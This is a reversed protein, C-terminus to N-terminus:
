HYNTYVHINGWWFVLNNRLKVLTHKQNTKGNIPVICVNYLKKAFVM